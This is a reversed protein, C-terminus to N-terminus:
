QGELRLGVVAGRETRDIGIESIRGAAGHEGDVTTACHAALVRGVAAKQVARDGGAVGAVVDVLDRVSVLIAGAGIGHQIAHLEGPEGVEVRIKRGRLQGDGDGPGRRGALVCDHRAQVLALRPWPTRMDLWPRGTNERRSSMSPPTAAPTAASSARAVGAAGAEESASILFAIGALPSFSGAMPMPVSEKRAATLSSIRASSLRMTSSPPETISIVAAYPSAAPRIPAASSLRPVRSLINM